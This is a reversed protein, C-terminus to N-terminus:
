QAAAAQTAWDSVADSAVTAWDMKGQAYQLLDGGLNNKWDQSPIVQFPSWSVPKVDDKSMWKMVEAALPDDPGQGASFWDFPAIFGLDNSVAKMGSDSSFLWTLFDLSAQQSAADAKSNISFYNETGIPIGYDEEGPIGMYLPLMHVDSAQVTNGQVGAVTAWGWNGNQVMASQGLAFEAMSEDVTKAGLETPAVTSNNLYLDFLNKMNDGYTFKITAPTGQTLDVKDQQFEYFLPVNVLHTQWRWDEGPKLSTDAFVGQIGLDAKHATMDEVVQKLLDYSTIQDTSTISVKKDPLAFYKKMIADNYIIGYGEEVYPVGWVGDATSVALSQDSLHKYIESNTLDATYDKWNSYGVPGNIQFITPPDSKAMESTLTQEYTGAAATQIKVDVGTEKKYEAIITGYQDAVEPKFNLFYVSGGGSGGTSSSSNGNPQTANGCGAAGILLAAAAISVGVTRAITKM